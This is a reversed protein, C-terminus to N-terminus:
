VVLMTVQTHVGFFQLSSVSDDDITVISTKAAAPEYIM